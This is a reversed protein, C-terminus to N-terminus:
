KIGERSHRLWERHCEDFGQLAFNLNCWCRGVDGCDDEHQAFPLLASAVTRWRMAEVKWYNLEDDM